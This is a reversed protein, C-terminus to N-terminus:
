SSAPPERFLDRNQNLYMYGSVVTFLATVAVMGYPGWELFTGLVGLAGSRDSLAGKPVDFYASLIANVSMIILIAIITVIQSTTKFKGARQAPLIRGRSAALTRLGTILFERAIILVVLWAPVYFERIQVFAILATSILLKDALPDLFKGLVSEIRYKRAIKGDYYDTLSAVVFIFLALLRSVPHPHLAAALFPAVLILRLFTLRNPVNRDM